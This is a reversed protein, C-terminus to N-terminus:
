PSHCTGGLSPTELGDRVHARRGLDMSVLRPCLATNEGAWRGWRWHAEDKRGRKKEKDGMRDRHRKEVSDRDGM